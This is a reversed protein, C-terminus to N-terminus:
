LVWRNGSRTILGANNAKEKVTKLVDPGHNQRIKEFLRMLDGEEDPNGRIARIENQYDPTMQGRKLQADDPKYLGQWGKDIAHYIWRIAETETLDKLKAMALEEAKETMPKRLKKRHDRWCKWAEKFRDTDFVLPV